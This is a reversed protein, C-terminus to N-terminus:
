DTAVPSVKAEKGFLSKVWGEAKEFAEKRSRGHFDKCYITVDIPEKRQWGDVNTKHYCFVGGLFWGCGLPSVSIFYKGELTGGHYKEVQMNTENM